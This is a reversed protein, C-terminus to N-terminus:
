RAGLLNGLFVHHTAEGAFLLKPDELSPLPAALVDPDENSTLTSQFAWGGFIFQDQNWRHRVLRRPSNLGTFSHLKNKLKVMLVVITVLTM